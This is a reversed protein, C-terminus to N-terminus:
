RTPMRTVSRVRSMRRWRTWTTAPTTSRSRARALLLLNTGTVTGGVTLTKTSTASDLTAAGSLSISRNANLSVDNTTSELTGGNITINTAPSSPATGLNADSSIILTANDIITGGSYSNSGSLTLTPGTGDVILTINGAITGSFNGGGTVTLTAAGGSDIVSGSGTLSGITTSNGNLDLTGNASLTLNGSMTVQGPSLTVPTTSTTVNGSYTGSEINVTNNASAANVGGQITEDNAGTGPASVYVNNAVWTILGSTTPADVKHYMKDEIRFDNALTAPDLGAFNVSTYSTLDFTNISSRNDVFYNSGGFLNGSHIGARADLTVTGASSDLRIDTGNPTGTFDNDNVGGQGSSTFRIGATTNDYIHNGSITATGSSVDIGIANGHISGTNNRVNVTGSGAASIGAISMGSIANSDAPLTGGVNVTAGGTTRVGYAADSLTNKTLDITSSSTLNTQLRVAVSQSGVNNLDIQNNDVTWNGTSGNYNAISLGNFATGGGGITGTSAITNDGFLSNGGVDYLYVASGNATPNTITVTNGTIDINSLTGGGQNYTVISRGHNALINQDVTVNSLTPSSTDDYRWASLIINDGATPAIDNFQVTTGSANVTRGADSQATVVVGWEGGTITNHTIWSNSANTLEIGTTDQLGSWVGSQVDNYSVNWNNYLSQGTNWAMVGAWGNNVFQNDCITIDNSPDSTENDAIVGVGVGTNHTASHFNQIVFGEITVNDVGAAIAFGNAQAFSSGNLVPASTGPGVVSHSGPDGTIVVSKTVSVAENYTGALVNVTGGSAVATVGAQITAFATVGFVATQNGSTVPDADTIIQGANLSSWASNVYVTSPTSADVLVVDNGDGGNYYLHFTRTGITVTAGQAPTTSGNITTPDTTGDNAILTLLTNPTPALTNVANAFTLTTGSLAVTGNVVLQDYDTGATTWPYNVDFALTANGNLTLNGNITVQGPSAGPSLTVPTTSTTVNGTYTGSEINVTNGSSAAAIGRQISPTTTGGPGFYSNPTVYINNAQLRVLGYGSVNLPTM